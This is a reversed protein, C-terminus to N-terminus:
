RRIIKKVLYVVSRVVAIITYLIFTYLLPHWYNEKEAMADFREAPTSLLDPHMLPALVLVLLLFIVVEKLLVKRM